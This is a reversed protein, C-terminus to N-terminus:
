SSAAAPSPARPRPSSRSTSRQSGSAPATATYVTGGSYPDTTSTSRIGSFLVRLGGGAALLSPNTLAQWGSVVPSPAGVTKGDASLTEHLLTQAGGAPAYWALQLVGDPTRALALQTINGLNGDSTRQWAATAAEAAALSVLVAAALAATRRGM